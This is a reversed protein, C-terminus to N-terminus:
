VGGRTPGIERELTAHILFRILEAHREPPFPRLVSLPWDLFENSKGGSSFRRDIEIELITEENLQNRWEILTIEVQLDWFHDPFTTSESHGHYVAKLYPRHSEDYMEDLTLETLDLFGIQFPNQGRREILRDSQELIEFLQSDQKFIPDQCRALAEKIREEHEKVYM